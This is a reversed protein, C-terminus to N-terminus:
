NLETCSTPGASGVSTIYLDKNNTNYTCVVEKDEHGAQETRGRMTATCVFSALTGNSLLTTCTRTCAVVKLSGESSQYNNVVFAHFDTNSSTGRCELANPQFALTSNSFLVSTLLCVCFYKNSLM